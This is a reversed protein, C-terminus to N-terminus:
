YRRVTEWRGTNKNYKKKWKSRKSGPMPKSSRKIGVRTERIRVSKAIKGADEATKGKHGPGSLCGITERDCCPKVNPPHDSGGLGRAIDHEAEWYEPNKEPDIIRGCM